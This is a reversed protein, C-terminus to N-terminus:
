SESIIINTLRRRYRRWVAGGLRLGGWSGVQQTSLAHLKVELRHMYAALWSPGPVHRFTALATLCNSLNQPNFFPM